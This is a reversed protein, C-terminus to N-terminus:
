QAEAPDEEACVAYSSADWIQWGLPLTPTRFSCLVYCISLGDRRLKDITFLSANGPRRLSFIKTGSRMSQATAIAIEEEPIGFDEKLSQKVREPVFTERQIDKREASNVHYAALVRGSQRLMLQLKNLCANRRKPMRGIGRRVLELPMKIM